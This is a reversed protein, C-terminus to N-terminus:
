TTRYRRWGGVFIPFWERDLIPYPTATVDSVRMSLSVDEVCLSLLGPNSEGYGLNKKQTKEGGDRGQHNPFPNGPKLVRPHRGREGRQPHRSKKGRPTESFSFVHSRTGGVLFFWLVGSHISLCHELPRVRVRVPTVPFKLRCSM